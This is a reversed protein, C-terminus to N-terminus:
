RIIVRSVVALTGTISATDGDAAAATIAGVAADMPLMAGIAPVTTLWTGAVMFDTADGRKTDPDVIDTIDTLATAERDADTHDAILSPDMDSDTHDVILTGVGVAMRAAILTGLGMAARDTIGSTIDVVTCVVIPLTIAGVTLVVMGSTIDGAMRFVIVAATLPMVETDTAETDTDAPLIIDATATARTSTGWRMIPVTAALPDTRPSAINAAGTGPMAWKLGATPQVAISAMSAVTAVRWRVGIAGASRVVGRRRVAGSRRKPGRRAARRVNRADSDDVRVWPCIAAARRPNTASARLRVLLRQHVRGNVRRNQERVRVAGNATAKVRLPPGGAAGVM